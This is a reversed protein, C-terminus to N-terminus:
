DFFRAPRRGDNKAAEIGLAVPLVICAFGDAPAAQM